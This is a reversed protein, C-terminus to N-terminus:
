KITLLAQLSNTWRTLMNQNARCWELAITIESDSTEGKSFKDKTTIYSKEVMEFLHTMVEEMKIQSNYKNEGIKINSEKGRNFM